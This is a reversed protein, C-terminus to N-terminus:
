QLQKKGNLVHTINQKSLLHSVSASTTQTASTFTNVDPKYPNFHDNAVPMLPMLASITRMQAADSWHSQPHCSVKAMQSQGNSPVFSRQHVIYHRNFKELTQKLTRENLIQEMHHWRKMNQRQRSYFCMM